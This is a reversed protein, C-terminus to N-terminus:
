VENIIELPRLPSAKARTRASSKAICSLRQTEKKGRIEASEPTLQSDRQKRKLSLQKERDQTEHAPTQHLGAM